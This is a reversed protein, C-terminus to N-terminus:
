TSRLRRSMRSSLRRPCPSRHHWLSFNRRRRLGACSKWCLRGRHCRSRPIHAAHRRRRERAHLGVHGPTRVRSRRGAEGPPLPGLAAADLCLPRQEVLQALADHQDLELVLLLGLCGADRAGEVGLGHEADLVGAQPDQVVDRRIQADAEDLRPGFVRGGDPERVGAARGLGVVRAVHAADRQPDADRGSSCCSRSAVLKGTECARSALCNTAKASAIAPLRASPM